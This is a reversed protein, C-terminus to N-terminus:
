VTRYPDSPGVRSLGQFPHDQSADAVAGSSQVCEIGSIALCL